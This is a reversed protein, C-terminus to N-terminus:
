PACPRGHRGSPSQLAHSRAPPQDSGVTPVSTPLVVAAAGTSHQQGLQGANNRLSLWGAKWCHSSAISSRGLYATAAPCPSSRAHSCERGGKGM